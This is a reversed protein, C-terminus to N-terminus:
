SGPPGGCPGPARHGRRDDQLRDDQLREELHRDIIARFLRAGTEILADPYDYADDHLQPQDLGSGLGFFAGPFAATFYGLDVSWRFRQM